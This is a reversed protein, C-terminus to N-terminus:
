PKPADPALAALPAFPTAVLKGPNMLGHPDLGAKIARLAALRAPASLRELEALKMQGIGHEASISGGAAVVLDHVFRTVVPAQEAYWHAPDTGPAARVHFHVNGDGLHGFGSAHTGPFRADCAAAADIMFRPMAAVPVSIDHQAAPGTARESESISDRIRWFAEAQAESAAITADAILGTELAPALLRELLTAPPEAQRDTAVAEILVHWPHDGALPARTQPVHRLVAALSDDPLLEFSEIAQTHAELRRLLTLADIPSALGIWAVARAAIAPVLRLTVATIVGLTGEAGILLQNLDYGRNDKKLASLGDHVLGDPLVAEVGAILGRMTGFRLVQTGGANTSSLGGITASGKAGLTLPFRRGAALAADHLDSLIVGAEAIALNDDADLSRVRDLRRLSLILASGDAPPTAGGVMSTNGGQPVLAVRHEAALRVITAVGSTDDPALIAPTAGHYRGRWDHLWPDIAAPDTIVAKPGLATRVAEILASQAPTM